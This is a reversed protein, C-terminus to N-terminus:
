KKTVEELFAIVDARDQAKKLGGFSKKTGPIFQKVDTLYEFITEKGWVINKSKAAESYVYGAAQGSHRGFLGQLNPGTKHKGNAEFTHCHACRQMFVKKGKEADGPSVDM